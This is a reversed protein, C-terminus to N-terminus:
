RKAPVLLYRVRALQGRHHTYPIEGRSQLRGVVIAPHVGLSEAFRLVAVRSYYPRTEAIFAGLRAPPILWDGAVRDAEAEWAPVDARDADKGVLAQDLFTRDQTEGRLIHALEHLLTFWFWDVRDYRLSVAVVPAHGSLWFAAGDIKTGPLHEVLVFRVGLDALVNSLGRTGAESVSLKPLEAVHAALRKREYKGAALASAVRRAQCVWAIEARTHAQRRESKRAAFACRPEQEMSDVGLFRCVEQETQDLDNLNADIWRRKILDKVPVKSFLRSRREVEATRRDNSQHLLDLRYSAELKLWYEASTGLAESLGIATEPTIAKKGSIIENIAQVPRGLIGGLDSQSWGRVELEEELIEGPSVPSFPRLATTM